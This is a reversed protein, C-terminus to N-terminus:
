NGIMMGFADSAVSGLANAAPDIVLAQNFFLQGIFVADNPITFNWVASNGAGQLFLVAETSVRLSCGPAGFPTADFPLPGFVSITNSFGTCMIMGSTPLEDVTVSLTTGIQPRGSPTLSSIQGLSNPCGVGFFGFGASGTLSATDYHIGGNWERIQFFSGGNFLTSRVAGLSLTMDTNSYVTPTTGTGTGTYRVSSGNYQIAIGYSGQPLYLPSTLPATSPVGNGACVGSGTAVLRWAAINNDKGVYSDPTVYVDTSFPTGVATAGTNHDMACINIGQPNTVDIDFMVIWGSSGGNNATYPTSFLAPSVFVLQTAISNRCARTATLRVNAAACQPLATVPNQVTSDTFGDGDFDWAWATAAPTTTDTFQYINPAVLLSVTFGATIEDTSIYATKRLTSPPHQSDTVILTVDYTGCNAYVHTPNQLTSDIVNDGDFDWAWATVGGPASSFSRDSFNVTLPSAGSTVDSTFNSYLGAAPTFTFELVNAIDGSWLTAVAAPPNAVSYVRKANAVGVTTVADLIPTNATTNGLVTTDITLDGSAPDYLFPQSFTAVAYFPGPTGTVSSGAAIPFAGNYVTARDLGHNNDWTTSIAAYDVPATSLDLQMTPTAGSWTANSANARWAIQTILIPFNVGNATFHTSDYVYLFRGNAVDFPYSTSSNGDVAAAASPIVLPSQATTAAALAAIALVSITRNM